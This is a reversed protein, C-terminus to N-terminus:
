VRVASQLSDTREQVHELPCGGGCLPLESCTWCKEPLGCGAPDATRRRFRLFLESHWIREWPDRLINGVSQYYSQCPLVDGNPEICISYEGANCRRLGLDFQLPSFRCYDTPLYWLFRMGLAAARKRVENLLPALTEAPLADAFDCGGGSRIIGNLAFTRLGLAHLFDMLSLAAGINRQTLTTNTLVYLSHSLANRIGTLVESFCERGCIANHLEPLHSHLTIQVHDLGAAQLASVFASDSLRRGNTNLGTTLGLGSAERVLDILGPFLTPEGGTFIVQPIGIRRLRRLVRCWASLSLTRCAPDASLGSPSNSSGNARRRPLNYCHSCANNCAYTLALDAKYPAATTTSFPPVFHVGEAEGCLCVEAGSKLRAVFEFVQCAAARTATPAAGHFRRRLLKEAREPPCGELALRVLFAASANLHLTQMANIFLTASSDPNTRLHLRRKGGQRRVEYTMLKVGAPRFLGNRFVDALGRLDAQLAAPLRRWLREAASRAFVKVAKAPLTKTAIEAVM